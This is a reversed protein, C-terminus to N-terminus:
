IYTVDQYQGALPFVGQKVGHKSCNVRPLRIHLFTKSECTDLHQFVREPMHDYTPAPCHCESCLFTYQEHTLWVDVRSGDESIEVKSVNWPKPPNLLKQYFAELTM